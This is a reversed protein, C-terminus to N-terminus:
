SIVALFWVFQISPGGDCPIRISQISQHTCHAFHINSSNERGAAYPHFRIYSTDESESNQAASTRLLATAVFLESWCLWKSNFNISIMLQQRRHRDLGCHETNDPWIWMCHVLERHLFFYSFYWKFSLPLHRVHPNTQGLTQCDGLQQKQKKKTEASFESVSINATKTGIPNEFMVIQHRAFSNKDRNKIQWIDWKLPPRPATM